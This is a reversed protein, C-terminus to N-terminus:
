KLSDMCVLLLNMPRATRPKMVNECIIMRKQCVIALFIFIIAKTVRVWFCPVKLSKVRVVMGPLINEKERELVSFNVICVKM